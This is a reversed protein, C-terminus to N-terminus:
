FPFATCNYLPFVVTPEFYYNFLPKCPSHSALSSLEYVSKEKIFVYVDHGM